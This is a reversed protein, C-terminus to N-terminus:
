LKLVLLSSSRSPQNPLAMQQWITGNLRAKAQVRRGSPCHQREDFMNGGCDDGALRRTDIAEANGGGLSGM